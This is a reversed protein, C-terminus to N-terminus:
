EKTNGLESIQSELQIQLRKDNEFINKSKLNKISEDIRMINAIQSNDFHRNKYIKDLLCDSHFGHSCPFCYFQKSFLLGLCYQCVQYTNLKYERKTM